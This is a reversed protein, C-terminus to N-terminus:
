GSPSWDPSVSGVLATRRLDACDIDTPRSRYDQGRRRISRALRPEGRPLGTLPRLCSSRPQNNSPFKRQTPVACSKIWLKYRRASSGLSGRDMVRWDVKKRQKPGNFYQPYVPTNYNASSFAAINTSSRLLSSTSRGSVPVPLSTLGADSRSAM